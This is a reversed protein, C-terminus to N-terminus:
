GRKKLWVSFLGVKIKVDLTDIREATIDKGQHDVLVGRVMLSKLIRIKEEENHWQIKEVNCIGNNNANDAIQKLLKYTNLTDEKIYTSIAEASDAETATEHYSYENFIPDFDTKNIPNNQTDFVYGGAVTEVLGKSVFM